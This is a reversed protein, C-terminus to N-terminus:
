ELKRLLISSGQAYIRINTLGAFCVAWLVKGDCASLCQAHLTDPAKTFGPTTSFCYANCIGLTHKYGETDLVCHAHVMNYNTAQEARGYKEM